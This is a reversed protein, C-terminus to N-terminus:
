GNVLIFVQLYMIPEKPYDSEISIRTDHRGSKTPTFQVQFLHSKNPPITANEPTIKLLNNYVNFKKIEIPSETENQIEFYETIITDSNQSVPTFQLYNPTINIDKSVYAHITFSSNEINEEAFSIRITKAINGKFGKTKITYNIIATDGVAYTKKDPQAATCGCSTRINNITVPTVGVNVFRIAGKIDEGENVKGADIKQPNLFEVEQSILPTIFIALVLLIMKAAKM